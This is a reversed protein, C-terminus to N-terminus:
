LSASLTVPSAKVHALFQGHGQAPTPSGNRRRRSLTAPTAKSQSGAYQWQIAAPPAKAQITSHSDPVIKVARTCLGRWRCTLVVGVSTGMQCSEAPPSKIQPIRLSVRESMLQPASEFCCTLLAGMQSSSGGQFRTQTSPWPEVAANARRSSGWLEWNQPVAMSM